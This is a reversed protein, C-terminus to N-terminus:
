EEYGEPFVDRWSDRSDWSIGFWRGPRVDACVYGQVPLRDPLPAVHFTLTKGVTYLKRAWDAGHSVYSPTRARYTHTVRGQSDVLGLEIRGYATGMWRDGGSGELTLSVVVGLERDRPLQTLSDADAPGQLWVRRISNVIVNTEGTPAYFALGAMGEADKLDPLEARGDDGFRFPQAGIPLWGPMDDALVTATCSCTILCCLWAGVVKRGLGARAARRSLM